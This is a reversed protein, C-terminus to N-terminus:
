KDLITTAKRVISSTSIGEFNLLQRPTASLPIKKVALSYIPIPIDSLATQVAEAIGGEPFHDEVVLIAKTETAAKVLTKKDIPKISYLDIVRILTNKSKLKEYARLSEHLTIGSAVVTIADKKSIRLTKSSGIPFNEKKKYIVATPIRSTRLYVIGKIKASESILKECSNADSPYLVTSKSIARFMAIDELGMQSSGDEGISVGAHSGVFKINANSYQAMRIQDHARTLFASFTSVFPIKGRLSLGLAVGVMNQEAIYMEFFRDKFYREFTQSYTSNKVEADLAVIDSNNIAAKVLGTGYAKRTSVKARINYTALGPRKSSKGKQIKPRTNRPEKIKSLLRKNVKGLEPLVKKFESGSLTKGHWGEKDELISIGKGKITKAIIMIPMQTEKSAKNFAEQIEKFDHGEISYTRWGFSSVRKQYASLDHGYMTEGRQGLRNVDLIAILNNLKYESALQIAEWNSGEALESDGLLIYTRFDLKDLYKANLAMGVGVSLGQGLSGTAAEVHSFQPTPHGELPSKFKRLTLLDKESLVGAAAFLSYLLPAAHGKSFIVRDNNPSNPNKISYRLIGAFFLYVMLEVASLSSSPHGSGAMTTSLLIWYRVQRAIAELQKYSYSM